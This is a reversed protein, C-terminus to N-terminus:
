VAPRFLMYQGGGLRHTVYENSPAIGYNRRLVSHAIGIGEVQHWPVGACDNLTFPRSIDRYPVMYLSNKDALLEGVQPIDTEPTQSWATLSYREHLLDVNGKLPLTTGGPLSVVQRVLGSFPASIHRVNDETAERLRLIDARIGHRGAYGDPSAALNTVAVILEEGEIEDKFHVALRMATTGFGAGVDLGVVPRKRAPDELRGRLHNAMFVEVGSLCGLGDALPITERGFVDTPAYDGSVYTYVETGHSEYALQAARREDYHPARLLSM